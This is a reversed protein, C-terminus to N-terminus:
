DEIKINKLAEWREDEIPSSKVKAQEILDLMQQNCAQDGIEQHTKRMPILSMLFESIIQETNFTHEKEGLFVISEDDSEQNEKVIKLILIEHKAVPIRLEELCLDCYSIITGEINFDLSVMNEKRDVDIKIIINADTIQENNYKEFFSQNIEVEQQHYGVALTGFRIDFQKYYKKDGM